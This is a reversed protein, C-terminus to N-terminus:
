AVGILLLFGPSPLVVTLPFWNRMGALQSTGSEAVAANGKGNLAQKAFSRNPAKKTHCRRERGNPGNAITRAFFARNPLDFPSRDFIASFSRKGSFIM